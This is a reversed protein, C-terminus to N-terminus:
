ESAYYVIAGLVLVGLVGAIMYTTTNSAGSTLNSLTSGGTAGNFSTLLGLKTGDFRMVAAGNFTPIQPPFPSSPFYFFHLWGNIVSYQPNSMASLAEAMVTLVDGMDGPFPGPNDPTIQVYSASPEANLPYLSGSPEPPPSPVQGVGVVRGLLASDFVPGSVEGIM